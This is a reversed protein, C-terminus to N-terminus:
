ARLGVIYLVLLMITVVTWSLYRKMMEWESRRRAAM